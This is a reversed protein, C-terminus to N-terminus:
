GDKRESNVLRGTGKPFHGISSTWEVANDPHKNPHFCRCIFESGAYIMNRSHYLQGEGLRVGYMSEIADLWAQENELM